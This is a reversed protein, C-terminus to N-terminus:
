IEVTDFSAIVHHWEILSKEIEFYLLVKSLIKEM